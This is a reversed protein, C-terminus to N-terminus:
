ALDELKRTAQLEEFLQNLTKGEATRWVLWGNETPRPSGTNAYCRIAAASPAYTVGDTLEIGDRRAKGKFEQGRYKLVLPTQEVILGSDILKAISKQSNLISEVINNMDIPSQRDASVLLSKFKEKILKKREQIFDEFRDLKWLAPDRPILHMNLYDEESREGVFWKDPPTDSKGGAGNEQATLLMCNALQNRDRERYRMLDMRGTSQNRQKVKRLVSQPFIHDVQPLSGAYAPTYNFERYWLNFILHINDSGYGMDWFRDETLELSRNASRIAGFVDNL